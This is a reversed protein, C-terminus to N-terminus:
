RGQVVPQGVCGNVHHGADDACGPHEALQLDRTLRIERRLQGHVSSGSSTGGQVTLGNRLRANVTVDVGQWTESMEGFTRPSSGM